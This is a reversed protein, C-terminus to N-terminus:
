GPSFYHFFLLALGVSEDGRAGFRDIYPGYLPRTLATLVLLATMGLLSLQAKRTGQSCLWSM